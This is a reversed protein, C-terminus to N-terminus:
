IIKLHKYKLIYRFMDWNLLFVYFPVPQLYLYSCSSWIISEYIPHNTFAYSLSDTVICIAYHMDIDICYHLFHPNLEIKYTYHFFPCLWSFTLVLLGLDLSMLVALTHQWKPVMVDASWHAHPSGPVLLLDFLLCVIDKDRSIFAFWM